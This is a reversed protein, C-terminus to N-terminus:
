STNYFLMKFPSNHFVVFSYMSTGVYSWKKITISLVNSGISMNYIQIDFHRELGRPTVRLFRLFLTRYIIPHSINMTSLIQLFIYM